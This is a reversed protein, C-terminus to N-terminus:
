QADHKLRGQIRFVVLGTMPDQVVEQLEMGEKSSLAKLQKLQMFVDDSRSAKGHIAVTGESGIEIITLKTGASMVTPLGSFFQTQVKSADKSAGIKRRDSILQKMGRIEVDLEMAEKFQSRM